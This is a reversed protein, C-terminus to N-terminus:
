LTEDEVEDGDPEYGLDERCNECVCHRGPTYLSEPDTDTDVLDECIVCKAMSM